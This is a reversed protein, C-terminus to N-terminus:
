KRSKLVLTSPFVELSKPTYGWQHNKLDEPDVPRIDPEIMQEVILGAGVLANVYEGVTRFNQAFAFGVEESVETGSVVKGTDFYSRTPLLTAGDVIAGFPHGVSFVFIGSTTLVRHVEKFCSLIDDVYQLASASFVIDQSGSEIPSLDTMDMQHLTLDVANQEALDKALEIQAGAIDVGTVIAGQKAFAIGCQAAGCGIELLRKATVSGILQLREENVGMGYIVDIPMQAQDQFQKAHKEWWHRAEDGM